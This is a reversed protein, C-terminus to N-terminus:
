GQVIVPTSTFISALGIVSPQELAKASREAAHLTWAQHTREGAPPELLDAAPTDLTSFTSM